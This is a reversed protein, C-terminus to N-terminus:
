PMGDAMAVNIKRRDLMIELKELPEPLPEGDIHVPFGGASRVVIKRSRYIRVGELRVHTGKLARPLYNFIQRRPLKDMVCIDFLGDDLRAQPTLFFGGGSSRGNGICILTVTQSFKVNDIELDLPYSRLNRWVQFVASLYRMIGSLAKSQKALAAVEADFGIGVTNFFPRGSLLGVDIARPKGLFAAQLAAELTREKVLMKLFDNGSGGPLVGMVAESGILAQGVENVTGDGGLVILREAGELRALRALRTGDGPQETTYHMFDIGQNRCWVVTRPLIRLSRGQGSVPNVILATKM